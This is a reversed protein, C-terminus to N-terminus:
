FVGDHELLPQGHVRSEFVRCAEAALAGARRLIASADISEVIQEVRAPVGFVRPMLFQQFPDAFFPIRIGERGIVHVLAEVGPPSRAGTRWGQMPASQPAALRPRLRRKLRSQLNAM